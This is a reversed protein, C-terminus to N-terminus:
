QVSLPTLLEVCCQLCFLLYRKDFVALTFISNGVLRIKRIKSQNHTISLFADTKRGTGESSFARVKM